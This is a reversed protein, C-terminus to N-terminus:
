SHYVAHCRSKKEADIRATGIGVRNEEAGLVPDLGPGLRQGGPVVQGLANAAGDAVHQGLGAGVRGRNTEGRQGGRKRGIRQDLALTPADAEDHDAEARLIELAVAKALREAGIGDHEQGAPVIDVAMLRYEIGTRQGVPEVPQRIRDRGERHGAIEGHAIGLVFQPYAVQDALPGM